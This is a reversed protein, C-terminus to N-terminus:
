EQQTRRVDVSLIFSSPHLTFASPHLGIYGRLVRQFAFAVMARLDVQITRM